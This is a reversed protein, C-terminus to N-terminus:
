QFHRSNANSTPRFGLIPAATASRAMSSAGVAASNALGYAAGIAILVNFVNM